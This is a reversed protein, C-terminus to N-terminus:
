NKIISVFVLGVNGNKKTVLKPILTRMVGLDNLVVLLLVDCWIYNM